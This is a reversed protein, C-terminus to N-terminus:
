SSLKRLASGKHAAKAGTKESKVIYAPEDSSATFKQGEFQFAKTKKEVVEGRTRGQSTDWSVRDGKSLESAMDAGETALRWPSRVRGHPGPTSLEGRLRRLLLRTARVPPFDRPWHIVVTRGGRRIRRGFAAADAFPRASMTMPAGRLRGIRHREGLHFALDLDDHVEPDDRHVRHRVSRWATRRLALNSGFLPRHALAPACVSAYAGLYLAAALAGGRGPFRAAGSAAGLRPDAAFARVCREIWDAPARCDADLRLLLDGAAADYGAASAAPIGPRECRVVRCGFAAAVRASDDSSANDVVLVEDPARTQGRLSRLCEALATADDKVPIIVSVRARRAQQM